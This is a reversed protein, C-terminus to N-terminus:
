KCPNVEIKFLEIAIIMDILSIWRVYKGPLSSKKGRADEEKNGATRVFKSEWAKKVKGRGIRGWVFKIQCIQKRDGAFGSRM